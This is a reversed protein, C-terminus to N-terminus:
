TAMVARLDDYFAFRTLGDMCALVDPAPPSHKDHVENAALLSKFMRTAAGSAPTFKLFRGQACATAFTALCVDAQQEDLVRIGSGPLCPRELRVYRPPHKFLEIQRLVQEVTLGHRVIQARDDATLPTEM